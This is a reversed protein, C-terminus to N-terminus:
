GLLSKVSESFIANHAGQAQSPANQFDTILQKLAQQAQDKDNIQTAKDSSQVPSTSSLKVSTPSLNVTENSVTASNNQNSDSQAEVASENKDVGKTQQPQILTSLSDQRTITSADM